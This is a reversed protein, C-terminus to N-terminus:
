EQAAARRAKKKATRVGTGFTKKGRNKTEKIAKRSTEKKERLGARILRHKPEFKKAAELTDYILGFGTSKGGGFATKFGFIFVTSPDKVQHLAVLKEKLESKAVNARNPHIVDIIMQRRNMLSNRIFKRTRLTVTSDAM